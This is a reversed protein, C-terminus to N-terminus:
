VEKEKSENGFSLTMKVVQGFTDELFIDINQQDTCQSTYYLRFVDKDLQFLDNPTFVRGDDLRLEGKGDPQFYRIYYKTGSYNGEKVIRCRIEVTEGQIIRKPVPMIELYFSYMQKIDLGNNCAAMLMSTVAVLVILASKKKETIRKM